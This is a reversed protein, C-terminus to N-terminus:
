PNEQYIIIPSKNYIIHYDPISINMAYTDIYYDANNTKLYDSLNEAGNTPQIPKVEKKLYWTTARSYDSYITKTQYSSDYEKLWDCASQITYGNTKQTTHGMYVITTTSLLIIAIILPLIWKKSKLISQKFEFQNIFVSLGLIIFYALAPTMTIFYRDEKIPIISHLIFFATFWSLFLFDIDLNKIDDSRILTYALYLVGLFIFESILYTTTLFTIIGISILLILLLLKFISRRNFKKINRTKNHIIKYIYIGLGIIVMIILIYAFITPIGLHPYLISNYDGKLPGVSIYNLINKLYYLKDAHYIIDNPDFNALTTSTFLSIIKNLNGIVSYIYLFFSIIIALGIPIGIIIKNYNLHLDKNLLIYLFIPFILIISSYKALVALVLFPIVLYLYKSDKKVGLILIYITWISFMAAPVDVGGSVAWTFILPFSIFILCGTFSLIQSFRECLLKYLGIIGIIFIFGDLIFIANSSIFGARFILSTLFSMLPYVTVVNVNYHILGAFILANNLYFYVDQYPVGLYEQRSILYIM